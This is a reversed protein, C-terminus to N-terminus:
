YECFRLITLALTKVTTEIDKILVAENPRHCDRVDGPGFLVTPTKGVNVLHRMDSGYTVGELIPEEGVTETYAEKVTEVIPDTVPVLAPKFQGGWWEMEPEHERLWPDAEVVQNLTDMFEKKAAEIDEDV